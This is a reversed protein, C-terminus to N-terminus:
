TLMAEPKGLPTPKKLVGEVGCAGTSVQEKLDMACCPARCLTVGHRRETDYQPCSEVSRRTERSHRQTVHRPAWGKAKGKQDLGILRTPKNLTM